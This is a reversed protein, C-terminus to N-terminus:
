YALHHLARALVAIGAAADEPSTYEAPTHSRGGASRVFVMAAPAITAIRQTDHGAGSHLTLAGVGAERASRELVEVLSPDLAYPQQEILVEWRATLGRRRAVTQIISEHHGYLAELARPDPHRADITFTVSEPVAATLNPVSSIRGVTTVAPRGLAMAHEIVAGIIEAAGLMPDLRTDMPRAGAHDSRGTLEVVYHRLGTIASVIGVPQGADELVPGQEIHLEIFAAIDDRIAERIRAPDLGVDRMADAITEGRRSRIQDADGPAIAGTIARSGWFSAQPFRSGEEECLSVVEIPRRPRGLRDHLAQVALLGAIVGLAGDYRGGPTQSDIHSGTVVVPADDTGDLRGWVSGVSDRRVTLGAQALWRDVLDQADVWEPSYVTRWVGTDAYAGIRGLELVHQAVVAPDITLDM